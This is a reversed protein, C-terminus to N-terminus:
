REQYNKIALNRQIKIYKRWQIFEWSNIFIQKEIETLQKMVNQSQTNINGNPNIANPM